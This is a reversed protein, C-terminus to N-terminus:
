VLELFAARPPATTGIGHLTWDKRPKLFSTTEIGHQNSDLRSPLAWPQDLDSRLSLAWQQDWTHRRQLAIIISAQIRDQPSLEYNTDPIGNSNSPQHWPHQELAMIVVICVQPRLGENSEPISNNWFTMSISISIRDQPRDKTAKLSPATGFHWASEFIFGTKLAFNMTPMMSPNPREPFHWMAQFPTKLAIGVTPKLYATTRAIYRSTQIRDEPSKFNLTPTQWLTSEPGHLKEQLNM